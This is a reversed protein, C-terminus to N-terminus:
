VIGWIQTIEIITLDNPNNTLSGKATTITGEANIYHKQTVNTVFTFSNTALDYELICEKYDINLEGVADDLNTETIKCRGGKFWDRTFQNHGVGVIKYYRFANRTIKNQCQLTGSRASGRWVCVESGDPLRQLANLGGEVDTPRLTSGTVGEYIDFMATAIHNHRVMATDRGDYFGIYFINGIRDVFELENRDAPIIFRKIFMGNWTFIYILSGKGDGRYYGAYIYNADCTISQKVYGYPAEHPRLRYIMEWNYTFVTFYYGGSIGTIFVDDEANYAISWIGSDITFRDVEKLTNRNVRSILTNNESGHAIYLYGDKSCYCMDNAHTYSTETVSMVIAGTNKDIKQLTTLESNVDILARYIYEGDTCGGQCTRGDAYSERLTSLKLESYNLLWDKPVYDGNTEEEPQHLGCCDEPIAWHKIEKIAGM